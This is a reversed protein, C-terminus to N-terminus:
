LRQEFEKDHILMAIFEDFNNALFQTNLIM